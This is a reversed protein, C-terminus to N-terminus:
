DEIKQSIFQKLDNSDYILLHKINKRLLQRLKTAMLGNIRNNTLIVTSDIVEFSFDNFVISAIGIHPLCYAIRPRQQSDDSFAHSKLLRLCESMLTRQKLEQSLNHNIEKSLSYLLAKRKLEIEPREIALSELIFYLDKPVKNREANSLIKLWKLSNLIPVLLQTPYRNLIILSKFCDILFNPYKVFDTDIIAEMQRMILDIIEDEVRHSVWSVSWLFRALDKSRFHTQNSQLLIRTRETLLEFINQEYHNHNSYFALFHACETFSFNNSNNRLFETIAEIAKPDCVQNLRWFKVISLVHSRHLRSDAIDKCVMNVTTQLSTKSPLRIKLRFLTHCLVAIDESSLEPLLESDSLSEEIKDIIKSLLFNLDSKNESKVISILYLLHLLVFVNQKQLEFTIQPLLNDFFHITKKHDSGNMVISADLLFLKTKLPFEQLILQSSDLQKVRLSDILQKRLKIDASSNQHCKENRFTM